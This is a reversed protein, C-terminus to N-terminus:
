LFLATHLVSLYIKRSQSRLCLFHAHLTGIIHTQLYYRFLFLHQKALYLRVLVLYRLQSVLNLQQLNLLLSIRLLFGESLLYDAKFGVLFALLLQSFLVLCQILFILSEVGFYVEKDRLIM